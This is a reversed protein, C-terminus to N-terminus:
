SGLESVFVLVFGLGSEFRLWLQLGSVSYLGSCIWNHPRFFDDVPSDRRGAAGYDAAYLSSDCVSTMLNETFYHDLNVTGCM